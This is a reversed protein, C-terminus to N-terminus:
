AGLHKKRYAVASENEPHADAFLLREVHEYTTLQSGIVQMIEHKDGIEVIDPLEMEFIDKAAVLTRFAVSIENDCHYPNQLDYEIQSKNTEFHPRLIDKIKQQIDAGIKRKEGSLTSIDLMQTATIDLYDKIPHNTGGVTHMWTLKPPDQSINFM